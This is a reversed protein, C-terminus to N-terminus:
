GQQSMTAEPSQGKTLRTTVVDLLSEFYSRQKWGPQSLSQYIKWLM